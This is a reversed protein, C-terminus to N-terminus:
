ASCTMKYCAWLIEFEKSYLLNVSPIKVSKELAKSVM